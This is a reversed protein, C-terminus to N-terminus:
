ISGNRRGNGDAAQAACWTPVLHQEIDAHKVSPIDPTAAQPSTADVTCTRTPQFKGALSVGELFVRSTDSPQNIKGASGPGSRAPGSALWLSRRAATAAKSNDACSSGGSSSQRM